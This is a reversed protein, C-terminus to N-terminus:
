VIKGSRKVADRIARADKMTHALPKEIYADQGATVAEVGHYAHQFDATSIIVADTVRANYLEENNRYPKATYGLKGLTDVAEDRRRNWLDSVAVLEMDLEAAHKHFAPMLSSRFRDSFGVVGVRVRANAGLIRAYSKAPMSTAFAVGAAGVAANKLFERRDLHQDPM